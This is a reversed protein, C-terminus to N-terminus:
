KWDELTLIAEAATLDEPTTIKINRYDGQSLYVRGGIAEILQCDDTYDSEASKVARLFLEKEFVQPTQMSYLRGRDPTMTVFGQEDAYKITDKVPVSAAAAGYQVADDLCSSIVEGSVLPRAGDHICLYQVDGNLQGTAAIVSQQRTEGGKVISVLKTIGHDKAMRMYEPIESERAVLIIQDIKEHEEFAILSHLLVPIGCVHALMKDIGDMRTANGAALIIAVTLPGKTKKSFLGM